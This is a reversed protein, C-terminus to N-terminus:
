RIKTKVLLAEDKDFSIVEFGHESDMTKLKRKVVSTANKVDLSVVIIKSVHKVMDLIFKVDDITDTMNLKLILLKKGHLKNHINFKHGAYELYKEKSKFLADDPKITTLTRQDIIKM